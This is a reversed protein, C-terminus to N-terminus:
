YVALDKGVEVPGSFTTRVADLWTGDPLGGPVLHSLVLLGVGAAEAVRGVDGVETHCAVIHEVLRPANGLEAHRRVSEEHYAEHVLVDAGGALDILVRSYRTDGSIVISRDPTDFRYALAHRLPPHDVLCARVRVDEADYVTCGVSIERVRLLPPFSARGTSLERAELEPRVMALFQNIAEALPPPGVLEVLRSLGCTWALLPLAGIDLAHDAHHHTLFVARLAPLALGAMAMQRGVGSGCDVVYVDDGVVIAQSPAAREPDPRPGGATGLLVLRTGGGGAGAASGEVTM